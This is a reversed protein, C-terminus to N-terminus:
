CFFIYNSTGYTVTTGTGVVSTECDLANQCTWNSVTVTLGLSQNEDNYLPPAYCSLVNWPINFSSIGVDSAFPGQIAQYYTKSGTLSTLTLQIEVELNNSQIQFSSIFDLNVPFGTLFTINGKILPDPYAAYDFSSEVTDAASAISCLLFIMAIM